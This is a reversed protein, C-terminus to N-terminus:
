SIDVKGFFSFQDKNKSAIEDAAESFDTSISVDQFKQSSYFMVLMYKNESMSEAWNEDTLNLV